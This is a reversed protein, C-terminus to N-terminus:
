MSGLKNSVFHINGSSKSIQVVKQKNTLHDTVTFCVVNLILRSM